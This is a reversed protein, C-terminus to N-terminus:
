FYQLTAPGLSGRITLTTGELPQQWGESSSYISNVPFPRYPPLLLGTLQLQAELSCTPPVCHECQPWTQM